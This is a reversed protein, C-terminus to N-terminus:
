RGTGGTTVTLIDWHNPPCGAEASSLLHHAALWVWPWGGRGPERSDTHPKEGAGTEISVTVVRPEKRRREKRPSKDEGTVEPTDLIGHCQLLAAGKRDSGPTALVPDSRPDRNERM